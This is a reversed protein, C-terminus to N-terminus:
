YIDGTEYRRKEDANAEKATVAPVPILGTREQLVRIQNLSLGTMRKVYVREVPEGIYGSRFCARYRREDVPRIGYEDADNNLGLVERYTQEQSKEIERKAMRSLRSNLNNLLRVRDKESDSSSTGARGHQRGLSTDLKELEHLIVEMPTDKKFGAKNKWREVEETTVNLKEM